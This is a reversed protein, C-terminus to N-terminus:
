MRWLWGDKAGFIGHSVLAEITGKARENRRKHEVDILHAAVISIAAGMEISPRGFPADGKNFERSSRLPEALAKTAIVQNAGRPLKMRQIERTSDNPEVVCSTIVEGDEDEGLDITRLSFAHRDGDTEDKSKAVSWERRSDTRAVEIAADLAAFLSSHGRLGKTSDKGTHHVLLVTRGTLQRLAECARILEGMDKSSNEDAGPAARNLTDLVLLGRQGGGALVAAALDNVDDPFRLDFPQMIFRLDVPLRGKLHKRMADVRKAMGHQGELCVYAVPAATAKRGFWEMGGAVSVSMDLALFSKGSASAGFLAAFSDAPLVGRILWKIRPANVLDDASKLLYRVPQAPNVVRKADNVVDRMVTAADNM